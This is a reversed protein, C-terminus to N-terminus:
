AIVVIENVPWPRGNATVTGIFQLKQGIWNGNFVKSLYVFENVLNIKVVLDFATAAVPAIITTGFHAIKGLLIRQGKNSMVFVDGVIATLTMPKTNPNEIPFKFEVTDNKIKVGTMKGYRIREVYAKTQLPAQVNTKFFKLLTFGALLLGGLKLINGHHAQEKPM